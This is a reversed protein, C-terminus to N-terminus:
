WQNWRATLDVGVITANYSAIEYNSGRMDRTYYPRLTLWDRIHYKVSLNGTKLHDVRNTSGIAVVDGQISQTEQRYGLDFTFKVDPSWTVGAEAGTGIMANAGASYSSIERFARLHASTKASFERTLMLSGTFANTRGALGGGGPGLVAADAPNILTSDRQSYGLEGTFRSAGTVVYTATLDESTQHYDTAGLIHSFSGSVYDVRLGATLRNIGLYNIGVNGGSERNSFDPYDPLPADLERWRPQLDLRWRPTVLVRVAASANHETQLELQDSLTNALPSMIRTQGYSLTGDVVPGLHWDFDGRGKYENHNLESFRDYGVHEAQANLRLRERSWAIDADVGGLYTYDRDGLETNGSSAFPPESAPRSFVNTNHEIGVTAYPTIDTLAWAGQTGSAGLLLGTGVIRLAQGAGSRRFFRNLVSEGDKAAGTTIRKGSQVINSAARVVTLIQM